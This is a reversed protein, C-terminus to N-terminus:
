KLDNIVFESSHHIILNRAFAKHKDSRQMNNGFLSTTLGRFVKLDIEQILFPEIAPINLEPIGKHIIISLIQNYLM